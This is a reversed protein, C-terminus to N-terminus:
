LMAGLASPAGLPRSFDTVVPRTLRAFDRYKICITDTHTGARFVINEDSALSRDVYVDLGYLNGFPPLAGLECDSFIEALELESAFHV